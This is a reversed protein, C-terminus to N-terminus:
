FNISMSGLRGGRRWFKRHQKINAVGVKIKRYSKDKLSSLASFFNLVKQALNFELFDFIYVCFDNFYIIKILFLARGMHLLHLFINGAYIDTYGIQRSSLSGISAGIYTPKFSHILKIMM